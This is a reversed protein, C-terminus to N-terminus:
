DRLFRNREFRRDSLLVFRVEPIEDDIAGANRGGLCDDVQIEALLCRLDQLGQRRALFLNNLHAKTELIAALMSELFDALVERNRALTNALDFGFSEALQAMGAAAMPEACEELVARAFGSTRGMESLVSFWLHRMRSITAATKAALAN